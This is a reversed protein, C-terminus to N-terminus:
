AITYETGAPTDKLTVGMSSLEARIADARAYDKAKKAAAREAIMADIKATLASDATKPTQAQARQREAAKLLDLSLVADFEGLLSLKAADSLPAKLVDYLATVALSTNLDNDMAEAFSARLAAEAEANAPETRAPDLAAIRSRLARVADPDTEQRAAARLEAMRCRLAAASDAYVVSMELLTM